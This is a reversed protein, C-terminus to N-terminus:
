APPPNSVATPLAAIWLKDGVKAGLQNVADELILAGGDTVLADSQVARFYPSASTHRGVLCREAKRSPELHGVLLPSAADRILSIQDTRCAFHPGGDFPDVRDAYEFGVRRLMREVPKTADGVQGIVRQANPSLLSAHIAHAPFLDRIFTKDRSSLIDAEAYSMATFHRGLAEWLHSTGDPQLPPLLEAICENQFWARRSAIFLLRVLSIFRGLREPSRRVGPDVVLGGLETPGDYSYGLRLVTHRFHRKLTRSHHEDTLVDFYIYPAGPRGHQAVIMSTGVPRNEALDHIAFVFRREAPNQIEGSFSAGSYALLKHIAKRDHPLNVTNLFGALEYLGDEDEPLAATVEYRLMTLPSM